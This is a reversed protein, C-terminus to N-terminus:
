TRSILLLSMDAYPNLYIKSARVRLEVILCSMMYYLLRPSLWNSSQYSLSQRRISTLGFNSLNFIEFLLIALSAKLLITGEILEEFDRFNNSSLYLTM